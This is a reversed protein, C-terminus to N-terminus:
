LKKRNIPFHRGKTWNISLWIRKKKKDNVSFNENTVFSNEFFSSSFCKSFLGSKVTNSPANIISPSSTFVNIKIKLIPTKNKSLFFDKPFYPEDTLKHVKWTYNFNLFLNLTTEFYTSFLEFLTWSSSLLLEFYTWLFNLQFDILTWIFNM